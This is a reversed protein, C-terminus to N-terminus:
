RSTKSMVELRLKALRIEGEIRADRIQQYRQMVQKGREADGLRVLVRGLNFHGGEHHPDLEIVRPVFNTGTFADDLFRPSLGQQAARQKFSYVWQAFGMDEQASATSTFVMLCLILALLRKM